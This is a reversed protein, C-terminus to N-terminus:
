PLHYGKTRNKMSIWLNNPFLNDAKLAPHGFANKLAINYIKKGRALLKKGGDLISQPIGASHVIGKSKVTEERSLVGRVKWGGSM